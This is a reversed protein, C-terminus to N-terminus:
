LDYGAVFRTRPEALKRSHAYVPSPLMAKWRTQAM